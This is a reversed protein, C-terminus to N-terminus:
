EDERHVSWTNSAAPAVLILRYTVCPTNGCSVHLFKTLSVPLTFTSVNQSVSEMGCATSIALFGGKLSRGNDSTM